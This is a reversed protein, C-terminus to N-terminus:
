KKGNLHIELTLSFNVNKPSIWSEPLFYPNTIEADQEINKQFVLLNDRTDSVGSVSVQVIGSKQRNLSFDTLYLGAPKQVGSIIKLVQSFYIEGKYFSNLQVLIGNYKKIINSFNNFDPTQNEKKAQELINKQNNTEALIYFEISLLILTLCVLSVLVIIGLTTTLKGRNELLLKQKEEPPLLNIM